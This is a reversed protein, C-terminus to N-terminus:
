QPTRASVPVLVTLLRAFAEAPPGTVVFGAEINDALASGTFNASGVLITSGDILIMKAHMTRDAGLAATVFRFRSPDGSAAVLDELAARSPAPDFGARPDQTVLMVHVGRATAAAIDAGLVAAASPHVYAAIILVTRRASKILRRAAALTSEFERIIALPLDLRTGDPITLIPMVEVRPRMMEALEGYHRALVRADTWGGNRQLYTCLNALSGADGDISLSEINRRDLRGASALAEAKHIRSELDDYQQAALTTLRAITM